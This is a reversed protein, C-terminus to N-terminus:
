PSQLAAVAVEGKHTLVLKKRKNRHGTVFDEASVTGASQCARLARWFRYRGSNNQLSRPLEPFTSLTKQPTYPGSTSAHVTVGAAKAAYMAMLIADVDNSLLSDSAASGDMAAEEPMPVGDATRFLRIPQHKASHNHKEHQLTLNGDDGTLAIRSRASNHWAVSGLYSQQRAGYRAADKDVHALLLVALSNVRANEGLMQRVFRRVLRNSNPDANFADSANDVIVLDYGKSKLALQKFSSTEAITHARPGLFEEALSANISAGDLVLLNKDLKIPDLRYAEVIRALRYRVREAVDELTVFLVNGHTVPFPGWRQDCAVHAGIVLALYSKGVDGHGSLLTVEDRPIIPEVVFCPAYQLADSLDGVRVERMPASQYSQPQVHALATGECRGIATPRQEYKLDM